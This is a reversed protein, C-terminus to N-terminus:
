NINLQVFTEAKSPMSSGNFPKAPLLTASIKVTDKDKKDKPLLIGQIFFDGDMTTTNNDDIFNNSINIDFMASHIPINNTYDISFLLKYENNPIINFLGVRVPINIFNVHTNVDINYFSKGNSYPYLASIKEYYQNNM